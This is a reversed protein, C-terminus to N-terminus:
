APEVILPHRAYEPGDSWGPLLKIAAAEEDSAYAHHPCRKANGRACYDCRRDTSSRSLKRWLRPNAEKLADWFTEANNEQDIYLINM